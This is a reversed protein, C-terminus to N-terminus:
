NRSLVGSLDPIVGILQLYEVESIHFFCDVEHATTILWPSNDQRLLCLDEPFAPQIWSYFSNVSEKLVSISQPVLLYKYVLNPLWAITALSTPAQSDSRFAARAVMSQRKVMGFALSLSLFNYGTLSSCHNVM